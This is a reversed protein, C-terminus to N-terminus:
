QVKWKMFWRENFTIGINLRYYDETIMSSSHARLWQGSINLMSKGGKLLPFGFGASVGYEKPGDKGNVMIYPTAYSVGMRYHVRRLYKRSNDNPVWETGLVLKHRDKLLEDASVYSSADKVNNDPASLNGWKQMTYDAGVM